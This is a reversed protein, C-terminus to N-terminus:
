HLRLLQKSTHKSDLAEGDMIGHFYGQGVLRHTGPREKSPRTIFPVDAGSFIYVADDERVNSPAMGCLQHDKTTVFRWGRVEDTLLSAYAKSEELLTFLGSEVKQRVQETTTEEDRTPWFLEFLKWYAEWSNFLSHTGSIAVKPYKAGAIPVRWLLEARDGEHMHGYTNEITEKVELFFSRQTELGPELSSRTVFEIKDVFYADTTLEDVDSGLKLNEDSGWAARFMAGRNESANLGRQKERTWDPMWSPSDPKDEDLGARYLLLMGQKRGSYKRFLAIGFRRAIIEFPSYYDLEFDGLNGDAAIGLLSFFRDRRKTSQCHRFTELLVLISLRSSRAEYQRLDGLRLFPQWSKRLEDGQIRMEIDQDIKQTASYLHEWDITYKGCVLKMSRAIVVEQIIWVRRFWDNRFFDATKSWIPDLLTPLGRQNWSKPCTPLNRPWDASGECLMERARVQMLMEVVETSEGDDRIFGLTQVSNQFIQALMKVQETKENDDDQNICIADVWLTVSRHKKRLQKLTLYLPETITLRGVPTHLAHSPQSRPGWVYSVTTYNMKADLRAVWILGHLPDSQEGPFLTFIRIQDVELREHQYLKDSFVTQLRTAFWLHAMEHRAQDSSGPSSGAGTSTTPFTITTSSTDSTGATTQGLYPGPETKLYRPTFLSHSSSSAPFFRFRSNHLLMRSIGQNHQPKQGGSTDDPPPPAHCDVHPVRHETTNPPTGHVENNTTRTGQYRSDQTARTGSIGSLLDVQPDFTSQSAEAEERHVVTKSPTKGAINGTLPFFRDSNRTESVSPSVNESLAIQPAADCELSATFKWGGQLKLMGHELYEWPDIIVSIRPKHFVDTVEILMMVDKSKAETEINQDRLRYQRAQPPSSTQDTCLQDLLAMQARSLGCLEIRHVFSLIHLLSPRSQRSVNSLKSTSWEFNDEADSLTAVVDIHYVPVPGFRAHLDRVNLEKELFYTM